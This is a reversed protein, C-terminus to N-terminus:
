KPVTGAPPPMDGAPLATWAIVAIVVAAVVVVLLVMLLPHMADDADSIPHERDTPDALHDLFRTLRTM